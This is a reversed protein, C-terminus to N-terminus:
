KMGSNLSSGGFLVQSCIWQRWSGTQDMQSQVESHPGLSCAMPGLRLKPRTSHRSDLGMRVSKDSRDNDHGYTALFLIVGCCVNLLQLDLGRQSKLNKIIYGGGAKQWQLEWRIRPWLPLTPAPVCGFCALASRLSLSSLVSM